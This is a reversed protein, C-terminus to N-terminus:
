VILHGSGYILLLIHHYNLISKTLEAYFCVNHGSVQVTESSPDCCITEFLFLFLYGMIIM